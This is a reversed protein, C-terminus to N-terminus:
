ESMGKGGHARLVSVTKVGSGSDSKVQQSITAILRSTAFIPCVCLERM